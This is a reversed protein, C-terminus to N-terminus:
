ARVATDALLPAIAPHVVKGDHTLLTGAVVEDDLPVSLQKDKWLLKLLNFVNRAYLLSADHPVSAPLNSPGLITVGGHVVEEDARTLECNGGTSAAIDVVVSGPKMAEVMARTLLVPAKRGPVQATTIVM